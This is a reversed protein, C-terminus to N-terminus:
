MQRRPMLLSAAFVNAELEIKTTNKETCVTFQKGFYKVHLVLHGLEHAIPDGPTIAPFNVTLTKPLREEGHGTM